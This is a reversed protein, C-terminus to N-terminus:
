LDNKPRLGPFVAELKARVAEEGQLKEAEQMKRIIEVNQPKLEVQEFLWRITWQPGRFSMFTIYPVRKKIEEYWQDDQYM